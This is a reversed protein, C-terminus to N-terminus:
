GAAHGMLFDTKGIPVGSQRLLNYATVSHFFVNPIVFSQLYVEGPVTKTTTKGTPFTVEQAERGVLADAPVTDLWALTKDIRALLQDFTTEDDAFKPAELQGVRAVGNKATDCAIRVQSALAFMDPALRMTVFADPSFQRQAANAAAKEMCHRMNLLASKVMPLTSLCLSM